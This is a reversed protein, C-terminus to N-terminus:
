VYRTYAVVMKMTLKKMTSVENNSKWQQCKENNANENNCKWQWTKMTLIKMTLNENNGNENNFNWQWIKMTAMKMTLNENNGNENDFKWQQIKENNFKWQQFKKWQKIKGKLFHPALGCDLDWSRPGLFWSTYFRPQVKARSDPGGPGLLHGLPQCIMKSGNALVWINPGLHRSTFITVFTWTNVFDVTPVDACLKLDMSSPLYIRLM